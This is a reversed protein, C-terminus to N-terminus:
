NKGKDSDTQDLSYYFHTAQLEGSIPTRRYFNVAQYDDSEAQVFIEKFGIQSCYENLTKMLRKGIGKRQFETSVALDYVYASAKESAYNCLTHATLGGIVESATKAVLVIFNPNTIIRQLHERSPFSFNEWEFVNEFVSILASFDDVDQRSLRRIEIDM